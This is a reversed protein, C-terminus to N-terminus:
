DPLKNKPPMQLDPDHGSIAEVLLSEEPKGPIVAPGTDGGKAVAAASDLRLGGKQKKEGHCEYCREILVPRVRKEFFELGNEAGRATLGLGIAATAIFSSRLVPM